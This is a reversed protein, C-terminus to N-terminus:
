RPSLMSRVIILSEQQTRKTLCILCFVVAAYHKFLHQALMRQQRSPCFYAVATTAESVDTLTCHLVIKFNFFQSAHVQTM